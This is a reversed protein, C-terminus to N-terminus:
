LLTIRQKEKGTNPNPNLPLCTCIKNKLFLYLFSYHKSKKHEIYISLAFEIKRLAIRIIFSCNKNSIVLQTPNIARLLVVIGIISITIRIGNNLLLWLCMKIFSQYM